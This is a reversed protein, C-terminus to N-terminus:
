WCVVLYRYVSDLPLLPLQVFATIWLSLTAAALVGLRTTPQVVGVRVAYLAGDLPM